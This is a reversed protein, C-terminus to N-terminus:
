QAVSTAPHSRHVVSVGLVQLAQGVAGRDAVHVEGLELTRLPDDGAAHVGRDPSETRDAARRAEHHRRV